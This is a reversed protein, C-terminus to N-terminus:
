AGVYAVLGGLTILIFGLITLLMRQKLKMKKFM